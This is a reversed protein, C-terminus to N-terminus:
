NLVFNMTLKKLKWKKLIYKLFPNKRLKPNLFRKKKLIKERKRVVTKQLIKMLDVLILIKTFIKPKNILNKKM